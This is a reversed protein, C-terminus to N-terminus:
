LRDLVSELLRNTAKGAAERKDMRDMLSRAATIGIWRLPEPEWNSLGDRVWPLQVRDTQRDLLLDALTRGMLNSAGVGEGLYGGAMALRAESDAWVMPVRNRPLGLPGGWRHTIKVDRLMPLLDVLSAHVQEFLPSRASFRERIASGYYYMGRSGYAIRDDATRQGYTTIRELGGFTEREGLGIEDWLHSPLPETAVMMSHMPVMRRKYGPLRAMYAETALVVWDARIRGQDTQVGRKEIQRVPANEFIRVGRSEVARALGRVLRAPHIAAVHPSFLAGQAGPVRLRQDLGEKSLWQYDDPGLGWAMLQARHAKQEQEQKEFRAIQLTGGKRFHCDIGEHRAVREVEDVCGFLARSLDLGGERTKPDHLFEEVGEAMGMCWGGNRGSAGAGSIGAECIAIRLHPENELLYYATWLGTYGAGVIVVDAEQNGKLAPRPKLDEELTSLWFSESRFDRM